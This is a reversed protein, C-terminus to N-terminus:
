YGPDSTIDSMGTTTSQGGGFAQGAYSHQDNPAPPMLPDGFNTPPLRRQQQQQQPTNTGNIFNGAYPDIMQPSLEPYGHMVHTKPRNLFAPGGSSRHKADNKAYVHCRQLADYLPRAAPPSPIEGNLLQQGTVERGYFKENVRNRTVIVKGDLSIGAYIGKSLSYTYIPAFAGPSAAFDAELARGVPGVAVGVDAGLQLNGDNNFMLEVAADTMLLFVHDSVQAGILAGWSMGATGIACPASWQQNDGLRAVVLGTGFEVGAVGFGGKAVTIVAVGKAEELLRAPIKVGDLNAFNPTINACEDKCQQIDLDDGTLFNDVGGHDQAFVSGMRKPLPLMNSLAYAAKRVEHGLTFAVPSNFFRRPDNPDIHNFRMANSNSLRLEPQLPQLQEHCGVCVRLPERALQFRQELGKGYLLQKDEDIYTLMRDPDQDPTFTVNNNLRPQAKKGGKSPTLVIASPPVLARQDSCKNCFIKGCLRCHHKRNFPHFEDHCSICFDQEVDYEWPNSVTAVSHQQGTIISSSSSAGSPSALSQGASDDVTPAGGGAAADAADYEAQLRRALEEDDQISPSFSKRVPNNEVRPTEEEPPPPLDRVITGM